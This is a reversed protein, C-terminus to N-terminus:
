PQPDDSHEPKNYGATIDQDSEITLTVENGESGLLTIVTDDGICIKKGPRLTLILM